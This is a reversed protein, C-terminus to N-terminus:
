KCPNMSPSAIPSKCEPVTVRSLTQKCYYFLPRSPVMLRPSKFKFDNKELKSSSNTKVSCIFHNVTSTLISSCFFESHLRSYINKNEENKQRTTRTSSNSYLTLLRTLCSTSALFVTLDGQNIQSIVGSEPKVQILSYFSSGSVM